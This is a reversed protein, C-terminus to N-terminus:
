LGKGHQAGADQQAFRLPAHGSNAKRSAGTFKMVFFVMLTPM